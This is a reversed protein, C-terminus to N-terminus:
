DCSIFKGISIHKKLFCFCFFCVFLIFGMCVSHLSIICYQSSMKGVKCFLVATKFLFIYIFYIAVSFDLCHVEAATWPFWMNQAYKYLVLKLVSSPILAPFCELTFHTSNGLSYCLNVATLCKVIQLPMQSCVYKVVAAADAIVSCM